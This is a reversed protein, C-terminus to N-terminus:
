QIAKCNTMTGFYLTNKIWTLNGGLKLKIINYCVSEAFDIDKKLFQLFFFLAWLLLRM